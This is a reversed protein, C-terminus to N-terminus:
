SFIRFRRVAAGGYRVWSCISILCVKMGKRIPFRGWEWEHFASGIFGNKENATCRNEPLALSKHLILADKNCKISQCIIM